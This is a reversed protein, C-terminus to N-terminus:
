GGDRSQLSSDAAALARIQKAVEELAMPACLGYQRIVGALGDLMVCREELKGRLEALQDNAEALHGAIEDRYEQEKSLQAQTTHLDDLVSASVKGEFTAMSRWLDRDTAMEAYASQRVLPVDDDLIKSFTLANFVFRTALKMRGTKENLVKYPKEGSFHWARVWAVVKEDGITM